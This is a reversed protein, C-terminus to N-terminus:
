RLFSTQQASTVMSTRCRTGRISHSNNSTTLGESVVEEAAAEDEVTVEEVDVEAAVHMASVCM